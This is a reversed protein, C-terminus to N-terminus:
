TEVNGIRRGDLTILLNEAAREALGRSVLFFVAAEDDTGYLSLLSVPHQGLRRLLHYAYVPVHEAFAMEAIKLGDKTAVVKPTLLEAAEHNFCLAELWSAVRVPIQEEGLLWTNVQARNISLAQALTLPRWRIATLCAMLRSPEM